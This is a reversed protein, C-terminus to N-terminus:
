TDERTLHCRHFWPFVVPISNQSAFHPGCGTNLVAYFDKPIEYSNWILSWVQHAISFMTRGRSTPTPPLLRTPLIPCIHYSKMSIHCIIFSHCAAFIIWTWLLPWQPILCVSFSVDQPLAKFLLFSEPSHCRCPPLEPFLIGVLLPAPPTTCVMHKPSPCSWAAGAFSGRSELSRCLRATLAACPPLPQSPSLTPIQDWLAYPALSLQQATPSTFGAPSLSLNEPM